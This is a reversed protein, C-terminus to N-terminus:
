EPICAFNYVQSFFISKLYWKKNTENKYVHRKLSPVEKKKQKNHKM